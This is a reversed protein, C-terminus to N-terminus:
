EGDIPEGRAKMVEKRTLYIFHNIIQSRSTRKPTGQWHAKIANMADHTAPLFALKKEVRLWSSDRDLPPIEPIEDGYHALWFDVCEHIGRTFRGQFKKRNSPLIYDHIFDINDPDIKYSCVKRIRRRRTGDPNEWRPRRLLPDLLTYKECGGEVVRREGFFECDKTACHHCRHLSVGM